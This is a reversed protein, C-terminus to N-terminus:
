RRVTDVWIRGACTCRKSTTMVDPPTPAVCSSMVMLATAAASPCPMESFSSISRRSCSAYLTPLLSSSVSPCFFIARRGSRARRRTAGLPDLTQGMRCHSFTKMRGPTGCNKSLLISVM